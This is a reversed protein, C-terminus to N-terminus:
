LFLTYQVHLGIFKFFPIVSKETAKSFTWLNLIWVFKQWRHLCAPSSTRVLWCVLWVECWMVASCFFKGGAVQGYVVAWCIVTNLTCTVLSSRDNQCTYTKPPTSFAPFNDSVAVRSTMAVPGSICITYWTVNSCAVRFSIRVTKHTDTINKRSVFGHSM